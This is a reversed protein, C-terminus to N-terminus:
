LEFRSTHQVFRNRIGSSTALYITDTSIESYGFYEAQKDRMVESLSSSIHRLEALDTEAPLYTFSDNSIGSPLDNADEAVGAAVASAKGKAILEAVDSKTEVQGSAVGVATGGSVEVFAAIALTQDNSNGNTTLSSNAWRLNASDNVEGVAVGGSNGMLEIAYETAQSISLKESM